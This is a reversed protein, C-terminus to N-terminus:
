FCSHNWLQFKEVEAPPEKPGKTFERLYYLQFTKLTEDGYHQNNWSRCLYKGLALLYKEDRSAQLNDQFKRWDESKYAAYMDSPREFNVERDNLADWKKGNQLVGDMVWYGDSRQPHPAFMAWGQNLQLTFMVEDFPSGIYWERDEVYGEVNWGVVLALIFCGLAKEARNLNTKVKDFGITNFTANVAERLKFSQPSQSGEVDGMSVSGTEKVENLYISLESGLLKGIARVFRIRSTLLMKSVINKTEGEMMFVKNDPISQVAILKLSDLMLMEKAISAVKGAFESHASFYLEKISEAGVRMKEDLYDWWMTPIMGVWIILCIPVFNGLHMTLGIGLHFLWFSVVAEGRFWDRKWPIMIMLPGVIELAYSIFSLFRTLNYQAGIWKGVPTTYIDLQLMYWVAEFDTHYVPAWKYFFTFFYLLFIQVIWMATFPSFYEHDKKYEGSVARDFSYRASMPLFLSWFFFIRILMDGGSTAGEPFRAQFSIIVLWIILNSTRTRWGVTYLVSAFMGALLLLLAFTYSGNLNLLSMRWPLEFDTILQARSLIGADSYFPEIDDIRRWLDFFALIGLLVRALALSRLDLKFLNKLM